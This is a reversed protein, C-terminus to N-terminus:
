WSTRSASGGPKAFPRPPAAGRFQLPLRLGERFQLPEQLRLGPSNCLPKPPRLGGLQVLRQVIKNNIIVSMSSNGRGPFEDDVDSYSVRRLQLTQLTALRGVLTFRFGLMGAQWWRAPTMFVVCVEM